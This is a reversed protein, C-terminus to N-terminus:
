SLVSSMKSWMIAVTFGSIKALIKNECIANFSMDPRLFKVVLAHNVEILLLCLSEAMERPSLKRSVECIRLKVFIFGECFNGLKCYKYLNLGKYVM